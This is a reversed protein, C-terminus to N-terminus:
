TLSALVLPLEDAHQLRKTRQFHELAEPYTRGLFKTWQKFRGLKGDNFILRPILPQIEEWRMENPPSDTRIFDSIQKALDPRSILGRGLMVDRCGSVEVCRRYDELSWIDGNAIVNLDIAERIKALWEWHAPPRYGEDRTRAHVTLWSAGASQAAKANEIALDPTHFGLRIKVSVPIDVPVAARVSEVIRFVKNPDKLLVAGGEHSNVRKAPCGFNLDIGLAGLSVAHLAAEGMRKTDSGLLQVFVPVGSKTRGGTRLEPCYRYFVQSPLCNGTVRVFETACIDIGGIATLIERLTFDVVGEM